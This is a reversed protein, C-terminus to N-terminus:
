KFNKIIENLKVNFNTGCDCCIYTYCTEHTLKKMKFKESECIPCKIKNFPMDNGVIVNNIISILLKLINVSCMLDFITISEKHILNNNFEWGKQAISNIMSRRRESSKGDLMYGIFESINDIFNDKKFDLNQSLNKNLLYDTLNLYCNRIQNAVGSLEDVSKGLDINKEIESIKRDLIPFISHGKIFNLLFNDQLKKSTYEAMFGVHKYYCEDVNDNKKPYINMPTSDGEFIYFDMDQRTRVMYCRIRDFYSHKTELLEINTILLDKTECYFYDKIKEFKEKKM